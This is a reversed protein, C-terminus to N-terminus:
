ALPHLQDRVPQRRILGFLLDGLTAAGMILDKLQRFRLDVM